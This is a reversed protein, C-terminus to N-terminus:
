SAANGKGQPGALVGADIPISIGTMSKAAPSCLFAVLEAVEIPNVIRNLPTGARLEDSQVNLQEMRKRFMDTEVWGPCVANVTIGDSAWRLSLSKMLGLLGHKAACYAPQDAVGMLGLVSSIYIVRGTGNRPLYPYSGQSVFWAAHLNVNLVQEWDHDSDAVIGACHVVVDLRQYRCYVAELWKEVEQKQTVDCVTHFEEFKSASRSCTAVEWGQNLFHQAIALGIGRNAGTIAIVSKESM